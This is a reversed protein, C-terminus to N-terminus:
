KYQEKWADPLGGAKHAKIIEDESVKPGLSKDKTTTSFIHMTSPARSYSFQEFYVRGSDTEIRLGIPLETDLLSKMIISTGGSMNGDADTHIQVSNISEFTQSTINLKKVILVNKLKPGRISFNLVEENPILENSV